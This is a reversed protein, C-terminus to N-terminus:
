ELTPLRVITANINRGGYVQYINSDISLITILANFILHLDAITLYHM